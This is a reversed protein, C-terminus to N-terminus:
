QSCISDAVDAPDSFLCAHAGPVRVVDPLDPLPDREGAIKLGTPPARRIDDLSRHFTKWTRALGSNWYAPIVYAYLSLPERFADIILRRLLRPMPHRERTWLPGVYVAERVLDARV